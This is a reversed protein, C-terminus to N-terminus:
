FKLVAYLPGEQLLAAGVAWNSADPTLVLDKDWNALQPPVIDTIARSVKLLAENASSNWTLDITKRSKHKPLDELMNILLTAMSAYNQVYRSYYNALGLFGQLERGNDPKTWRDLPVLSYRDTCVVTAKFIPSRLVDFWPQDGEAGLM